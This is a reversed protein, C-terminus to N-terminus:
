IGTFYPVSLSSFPLILLSGVKRLFPHTYDASHAEGGVKLFLLTERWMERAIGGARALDRGGGGDRMALRATTENGSGAKLNSLPRACKSRGFDQAELSPQYPTTMHYYIYERYHTPDPASILAPDASTRQTAPVAGARSCDPTLPCKMQPYDYAWLIGSIAAKTPLAIRVM